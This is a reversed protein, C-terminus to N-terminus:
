PEGVGDDISNIGASMISYKVIPRGYFFSNNLFFCNSRAFFPQCVRTGCFKGIGLSGFFNSL